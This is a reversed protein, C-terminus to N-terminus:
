ANKFNSIIDQKEEEYAITNLAKVIDKKNFSKYFWQEKVEPIKQEIKKLDDVNYKKGYEHNILSRFQNFTGMTEEPRAIYERQEMTLNKGRTSKMIDGGLISVLTRGQIADYNSYHTLEEDIMPGTSGVEGKIVDISTGIGINRHLGTKPEYNTVVSANAHEPAKGKLIRAKKAQDYMKKLDEISVRKGDATLAQRSMLELVEPQGYHGFFWEKQSVEKGKQSEEQKLSPNILDFFGISKDTKGKTVLNKDKNVEAIHAFQHGEYDPKKNNFVIGLDVPDLNETKIPPDINALGSNSLKKKM